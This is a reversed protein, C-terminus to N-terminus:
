FCHIRCTQKCISRGKFERRKFTRSILLDLFILGEFTLQLLFGLPSMLLIDAPDPNSSVSLAPLNKAGLKGSFPSNFGMLENYVWFSM